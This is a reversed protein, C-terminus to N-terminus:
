ILLILLSPKLQKIVVRSAYTYKSLRGTCTAATKRSFTRSSGASQEKMNGGLMISAVNILSIGYLTCCEIGNIHM